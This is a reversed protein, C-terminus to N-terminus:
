NIEEVLLVNKEREIQRKENENEKREKPELKM